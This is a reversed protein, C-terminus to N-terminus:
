RLSRSTVVLCILMSRFKTVPLARNASNATVLAQTARHENQSMQFCRGLTKASASCDSCTISLRASMPTDWMVRVPPSGSRCGWMTSKTRFHVDRPTWLATSSAAGESMVSSFSRNSSSAPLSRIEIEKSESSGATSSADLRMGPMMRSM